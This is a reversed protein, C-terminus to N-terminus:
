ADLDPFLSRPKHLKAQEALLRAAAEVADTLTKIGNHGITSELDARCSTTLNLYTAIRPEKGDKRENLRPM